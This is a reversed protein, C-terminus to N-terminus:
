MNQYDMTNFPNSASYPGYQGKGMDVGQTGNWWRNVSDGLGSLGDFVGSKGLTQLSQNIGAMQAAGAPNLATDIGFKAAQNSASTGYATGYAGSTAPTASAAARGSVMGALADNPGPTYSPSTNEQNPTGAASLTAIPSMLAQRQSTNIDGTSTAAKVVNDSMQKSLEDASTRGLQALVPGAASGTRASQRLTDAILPAM